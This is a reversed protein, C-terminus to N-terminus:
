FPYEPVALGAGLLKSASNEYTTKPTDLIRTIVARGDEPIRVLITELVQRHKLSALAIQYLDEPGAAEFSLKLYQEAKELVLVSEEVKGKEFMRAGAVLRIDANYLLKQPNTDTMDIVAHLAWFLNEPTIPPEPLVYEIDVMEFDEPPPSPAQSFVYKVSATKIISVALIFFAFSFFSLVVLKQKM